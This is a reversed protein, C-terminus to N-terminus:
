LAVAEAAAAAIFAILGAGRTCSLVVSLTSSGIFTEISAPGAAFIPPLVGEELSFAAAATSSGLLPGLGGGAGSM